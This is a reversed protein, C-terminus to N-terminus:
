VIMGYLPPNTLLSKKDNENHLLKGFFESNSIIFGAIVVATVIPIIKTRIGIIEKTLEDKNNNIKVELEVIKAFLNQDNQENHIIREEHAALMKIVNLNVDNIREIAEELKLVIEKLDSVQQKLVAVEVECSPEQAM